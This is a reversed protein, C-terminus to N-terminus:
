PCVGLAISPSRLPNGGLVLQFPKAEAVFGGVNLPPVCKSDHLDLPLNGVPFVKALPSFRESNAVQQIADQAVGAMIRKLKSLSAQGPRGCSETRVTTLKEDRRDVLDPPPYVFQVIRCFDSACEPRYHTSDSCTDSGGGARRRLRGDGPQSLLGSATQVRLRAGFSTRRTRRRPKRWIVSRWVAM